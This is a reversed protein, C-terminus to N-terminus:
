ILEQTLSSSCLDVDQTCDAAFVGGKWGEKDKERLPDSDPLLMKWCSQAGRLCRPQFSRGERLCQFIMQPFDTQATIVVIQTIYLIVGPKAAEDCFHQARCLM